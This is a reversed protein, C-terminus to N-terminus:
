LLNLWIKFVPLKEKRCQIKQQIMLGKNPQHQDQGKLPGRISYLSVKCDKGRLQYQGEPATSYHAALADNVSGSVLLDRGLENCKGQIRSATNIADGHFAISKRMAGVQTRIVRGHHIGAKFEPVVGYKQRFYTSRQRLNARFTFFHAVSNRLNFESTRWTFIAEDGVYQYIEACTAKASKAMAFFCDQILQSYRAAGLIEAHTTSSKMDLFMFIRDEEIGDNKLSIIQFLDNTQVWALVLKSLQLVITVLFIYVGMIVINATILTKSFMAIGIQPAWGMFLPVLLVTQAIGLIFNIATKYFVRESFRLNEFSRDLAVDISGFIFGDIFGTIATAIFLLGVNLDVIQFPTSQIGWVKISLFLLKAISWTVMHYAIWKGNERVHEM